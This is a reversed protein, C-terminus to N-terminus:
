SAQFKNFSAQIGPSPGNASYVLEIRGHGCDRGDAPMAGQGWLTCARVPVVEISELEAPRRAMQMVLASDLLAIVVNVDLLARILPAKSIACIISKNM